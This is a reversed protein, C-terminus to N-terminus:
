LYLVQIEDIIDDNFKQAYFPSDLEIFDKIDKLADLFLNNLEIKM